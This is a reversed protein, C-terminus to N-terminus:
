ESLLMSAVNNYYTITLASAQINAIRVPIDHNHMFKCSMTYM